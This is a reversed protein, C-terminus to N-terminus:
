NETHDDTSKGRGHKAHWESHHIACLWMVELPKTYDRHHGQSKSSGCVECRGRVLRGDRIANGVATSAKRREPNLRAWRAAREAIVVRRSALRSRDRDYQRVRELNENRFRTADRKTCEICKGLRGDAMQPHRYFDDVPLWEECRFCRKLEAGSSTPADTLLSTV